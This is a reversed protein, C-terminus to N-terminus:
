KLTNKYIKGDKMILLLNDSPKLLVNLDEMPNGNHILLDAYAGVQIVGLPHPYPNLVGSLALLKGGNGTAQQLIEPNSFWKTRQTFEVNEKYFMSPSNIVDTGFVINRFGIEKANTFLSDLGAYAKRHKDAQGPTYGDPIFTYANVQPSLWIDKEKMLKLTEKNLLNGHEISRVGNEIARRVGAENYVHAMVYTGFDSAVDVAAKIEDSTFETVELPDSISGTGGGVCIKIQSAQRRLNERVAKMIESKGDAIAMHGGEMLPDPEFKILASQMNDFRHDAHGGTQSIMTGSPYIRPGKILGKDIAKKLSFTNGGADRISTFGSMLLTDAMKQAVYAVYYEDASVSELFNTQVMIHVHCDIFGPTLVKGKADIVTASKPVNISSGIQKILNDEILVSQTQSLKDSTGDFIRANKILILNQALMINSLFLWCVFTLVIHKKM